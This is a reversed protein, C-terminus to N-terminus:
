AAGSAKKLEEIFYKPSIGTNATFANVFRRTSSFGAEDALAEHTYNRLTKENKIRQAIHQVKLGNIYENFKKHRQKLIILSLYKTNTNFHGALKTLNLDKELFKTSNEFKTLSHLVAEEVDRSMGIEADSTKAKAKSIADIKQLLEGYKKRAEKKNRYYRLMGYAVLLLLAGIVASFIKDNYKRNSLSKKLSQQEALLEKTEYEKQIKGQLYAHTQHLKQDIELLKEVYLLQEPLQNKEKYYSILVEYAGRIDPRMYGRRLYIQDVKKFYAVAKEQEGLSWYAKGLYFYGVMENSFDKNARIGIMAAQLKDVATRYNHVLCQNVGESFVFYPEMDRNGTRIGEAMGFENTETCLGHNGVLKYCIGLSHLSNLYARTHGKKFYGCCERFISIAEDYYGLIYKMQGIHYRTKYILYPDGTKAVYRDAILYTDMAEALRKQGYFAIGKSLYAAGIVENSKSRKAAAVMSDAYAMKLADPAYHVYNKYGNSLEEWNEENKAKSVFSRLYASRAAHSIDEEIRDFLYDYSRKQLSDPTHAPRAGAENTPASWLVSALLLRVMM